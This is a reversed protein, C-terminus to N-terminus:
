KELRLKKPAEEEAPAPRTAAAAAKEEDPENFPAFKKEVIKKTRTLMEDLGAAGEMEEVSKKIQTQYRRNLHQGQNPYRLTLESKVKMYEEAARNREKTLEVMQKIIRQKEEPSKEEAKQRVLEQFHKEAEEIRTTLSSLRATKETFERQDKPVANAAEKGGGEEGEGGGENAFVLAPVVLALALTGRLFNHKLSRM